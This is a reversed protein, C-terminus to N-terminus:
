QVWRTVQQAVEPPIALGLARASTQNVVFDFASPQEVPLDAPNAGHLIRDVYYGVRRYMAEISAGYFMLGGADTFQRTQGSGALHHMLLLDAVAANQDGPLGFIVFAEAGSAIATRYGNLVDAPSDVGLALPQLGMQQATASFIEAGSIQGPNNLPYVCGIRTLGPEIQQLIQLRKSVLAPGVDSIGTINGGPHALSQVFGAGVPDGVQIGVIPITTTVHQAAETVPSSVTVLVDVPLRVLEDAIASWATGSRDPPFRFELQVNKGDLYGFDALGAAGASANANVVPDPPSDM